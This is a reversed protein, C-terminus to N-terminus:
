DVSWLVYDAWVDRLFAAFELQTLENTVLKEIRTAIAMDLDESTRELLRYWVSRCLKYGHGDLFLVVTHFATRKNGDKYAHNKAIHFAYCAALDFIDASPTYYAYIEPAAIASLLLHQKDSPLEEVDPLKMVHAHIIPFAEAPLYKILM